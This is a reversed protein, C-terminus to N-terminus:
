CKGIYFRFKEAEDATLNEGELALVQFVKWRFPALEAIGASMDEDKNYACVVTNIRFAVDFQACLEAVRRVLHTQQAKGDSRGARGIQTNTSDDFSDISITLMDIYSAYTHMWGEQIKSGNSVISVVLQLDEKCYRVMEGLM